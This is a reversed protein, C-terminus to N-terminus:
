AKMIYKISPHFQYNELVLMEMSLNELWNVKEDISSDKPPPPKTIILNPKKYISRQSQEIAGAVHEEYIHTDGMNIIIRHAPVHLVHALLSTLLATSAINFPIGACVDASRQTMMCSLGRTEHIYFQYM